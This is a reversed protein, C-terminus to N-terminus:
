VKNDEKYNRMAAKVIQNKVESEIKDKSVFMYVVFILLYFGGVSAFGLAINDLVQGIWFAMSFSIMVLIFMGLVLLLLSSVMVASINAIVDVLELKMLQVRKDLYEKLLDVM